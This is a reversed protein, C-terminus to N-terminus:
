QAPELVLTYALLHTGGEIVEDRGLDRRFGSREYLRQATTMTATTHLLLRHKGVARARDIGAAVLAAGVGRGQAPPAVALMRLGAEDPGDFWAMPGPGPVYAIGGVVEGDADVAVLVDVLGARGAVDALEAQYRAGLGPGLLDRYAAITLAALDRYEDPLVVRVTLHSSM